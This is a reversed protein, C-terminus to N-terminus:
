RKFVIDSHWELLEKSPRRPETPLWIKRNKLQYYEEGNHFDDKLRRSVHLRYDPTVTIYGRDFLRHLDSRMLLGNPIEHRGGDAVPKIHAAELVPLVKEGTVACHRDYVDTIVVRFTGQGLRPRVLIPDGHMPGDIFHLHDRYAAWLPLEATPAVAADAAVPQREEAQIRELRQRVEAWLAAGTGTALDYRKGTQINRSYDAPMPIWDKEDFFFPATLLICGVSYDETSTEKLRRYKEIRQRMEALTAAGNAQGFAEWALSSPLLSFHAFFGGGAIYNEPSHLKFLFPEGPQLARFGRSGGPQWFNAEAPKRARLFRFWDNDTVGIFLKM